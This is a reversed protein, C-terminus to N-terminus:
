RRGAGRRIAPRVPPSAASRACGPRTGTRPRHPRPRRRSARRRPGPCWRPAARRARRATRRSVRDQRDRSAPSSMKKNWAARGAPAPRLWGVASICGHWQAGGEVEQEVVPEIGGRKRLPLSEGVMRAFGEIGHEVGALANGPLFVGREVAEHVGFLRAHFSPADHQGAGRVFGAPGIGLGAHQARGLIVGDAAHLQGVGELGRGVAEERFRRDADAGVQEGDAVGVQEHHVAGLRLTFDEGEVFEVPAPGAGHAEGLGLCAGREGVDGRAGHGVPVIELGIREARAVAQGAVLHPNGGAVVLHGLVDDVEHQGLDGPRVAARHGAHLANREEDHGLVQHVAGPLEGALAVIHGQRAEVVLEAPTAGGVRQEIESLARVRHPGPLPRAPQVATARAGDAVPHAHRAVAQLAHEVHHVLGADADAHGGGHEAQGAVARAQLVGPVAGLAPRDHRARCRAVALGALVGGAGGTRRM